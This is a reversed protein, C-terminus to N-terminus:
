LNTILCKLGSSFNYRDFKELGYTCVHTLCLSHLSLIHLLLLMISQFTVCVFCAFVTSHFSKRVCTDRWLTRRPVAFRWRFAFSVTFNLSGLGMTAVLAAWGFLSDQDINTLCITSLLHSVATTYAALAIFVISALALACMTGSLSLPVKFFRALFLSQCAQSSAVAM